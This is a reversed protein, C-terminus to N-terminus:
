NEPEQKETGQKENNWKENIKKNNQKTKNKNKAFSLFFLLNGPQQNVDCNKTQTIASRWVFCSEIQDM